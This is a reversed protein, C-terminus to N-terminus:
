LSLVSKGRLSIIDNADVNVGPSRELVDMASSGASVISNEVNVVLRDALKQIFPKRATVSVGGLAISQQSLRIAPLETNGALSLSPSTYTEHNIASVRLVYSGPPMGTMEFNGQADTIGTKVLVSDSARLLLVTANEVPNGQSSRIQSSIHPVQASSILALLLTCTVVFFKKM